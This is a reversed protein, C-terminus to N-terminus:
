QNTQPTEPTLILRVPVGAADVIKVEIPGNFHHYVDVKIRREEHEEETM